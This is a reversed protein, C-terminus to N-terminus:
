GQMNSVRAEVHPWVGIGRLRTASKLQFGGRSLAYPCPISASVPCTGQVDVFLEFCWLRCQVRYRSVMGREVFRGTERRGRIGTRLPSCGQLCVMVCMCHHLVLLEDRGDGLAAHQDHDGGRSEMSLASAAMGREVRIGGEMLDGPPGIVWWRGCGGRERRAWM